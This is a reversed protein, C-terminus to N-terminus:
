SFIVTITERQQMEDTRRNPPSGASNLRPPSHKRSLESFVEFVILPRHNDALVSGVVVVDSQM